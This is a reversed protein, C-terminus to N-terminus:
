KERWEIYHHCDLLRVYEALREYLPAAREGFQAEVAKGLEIIDTEGDLLCWVFSGLEDLHLQTKEPRHLLKQAARNFIGTNEVELTVIGKGDKTWLINEQRKPRRELYNERVTKKQKRM